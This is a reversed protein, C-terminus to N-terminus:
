KKQQWKSEMTKGYIEILQKLSQLYTNSKKEYGAVYGINEINTENNIM